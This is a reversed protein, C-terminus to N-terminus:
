EESPRLGMPAPHGSPNVPDGASQRLKVFVARRSKKGQQKTEHSLCLSGGTLPVDGKRRDLIRETGQRSRPIDNPLGLEM